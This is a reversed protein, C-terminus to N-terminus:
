NLSRAIAQVVSDAYEKAESHSPIHKVKAQELFSNYQMPDISPAASVVESRETERNTEFHEPMCYTEEISDLERKYASYHSKLHELFSSMKNRVRKHGYAGVKASLGMLEIYFQDELALSPNRRFRGLAELCEDYVEFAKKRNEFHRERRYTIWSTAISSIIGAAISALASVFTAEPGYQMFIGPLDM